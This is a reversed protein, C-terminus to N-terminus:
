LPQCMVNADRAHRHKEETQWNLSRAANPSL